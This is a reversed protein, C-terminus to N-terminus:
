SEIVCISYNGENEKGYVWVSLCVCVCVSWLGEWAEADINSLGAACDLKCNVILSVNVIISPFWGGAVWEIRCKGKGDPKRLM